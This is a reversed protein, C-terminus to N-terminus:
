VTIERNLYTLVESEHNGILGNFLGFSVTRMIPHNETGEFAVVMFPFEKSVEMAAEMM